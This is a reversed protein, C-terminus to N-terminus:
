GCSWVRAWWWWWRQWIGHSGSSVAADGALAHQPAGAPCPSAMTPRNTTPPPHWPTPPAQTHHHPHRDVAATGHQTRATHPDPPRHPCRTGCVRASVTAAQWTALLWGQLKPTHTCCRSSLHPFWGALGGRTCKRRTSTTRAAVHCRAGQQYCTCFLFVLTRNPAAASPRATELQRRRGHQAAHQQLAPVDRQPRPCPDPRHRPCGPARFCAPLPLVLVLACCAPSHSGCGSLMAFSTNCRTAARPTHPNHAHHAAARALTTITTTNHPCRAAAGRVDIRRVEILGTGNM